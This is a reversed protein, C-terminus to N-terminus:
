WSCFTLRLVSLSSGEDVFCTKLSLLDKYWIRVISGLHIGMSINLFVPDQYLQQLADELPQVLFSELPVLGSICTGPSLVLTSASNSLNTFTPAEYSLYLVGKPQCVLHGNFMLFPLEHRCRSRPGSCLMDLIVEQDWMHLQEYHPVHLNSWTKEKPTRINRITVEQSFVM